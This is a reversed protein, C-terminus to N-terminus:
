CGHEKRHQNLRQLAAKSAQRTVSTAEKWKASTMDLIGRGSEQIKLAAEHYERALRDREDCPLV